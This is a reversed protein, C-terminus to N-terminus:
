AEWLSASISFFFEQMDIYSATDVISTDQCIYLVLYASRMTAICDKCMCVHASGSWDYLGAIICAPMEFVPWLSREVVYNNNLPQIIILGGRFM